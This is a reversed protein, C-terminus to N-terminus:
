LIVKKGNVIYLGKTPNEVRRGSLDYYTGTAFDEVEAADILTTEGNRTRVALQTPNATDTVFYARYLKVNLTKTVKHLQNDASTYAYYYNDADESTAITQNTFSGIMQWGNVEEPNTIESSITTEGGTIQIASKGERLSFLYPINAQPAEVEDFILMDNEASTLSYFAFNGLSEADPSFPLMITGYKGSALERHYTIASYTNPNTTNFDETYFDTLNLLKITNEPFALSGLQPNSNFIVETLNDCYAFAARDIVTVNQPFIVSTLNRCSHFAFVGISTISEPLNVSTLSTCSRFAQDGIKTVGMPITVSILNSCCNFAAEKIESIGNPLKASVISSCGSFAYSEISSINEPIILETVLKEDLYLNHAYSLPNSYYDSFSIKCWADISNINVATLNNCEYFASHNIKTVSQPITISLLASCGSFASSGISSVSEPITISTLNNCGKLMYAEISTVKEGISVEKLTTKGGFHPKNQLNLNRGIYIKELPSGSFATEDDEYPLNFTLVNDSDEIFLEKLNLCGSFSCKGMNVVSNPITISSIGECKEFAGEEISIVTNPINVTKIGTCGYFAFRRISTITNPIELNVVEEGNLFLRKAFHLPNSENTSDEERDIYAFEIKCWAELDNIYVATLDRCGKFAYLGIKKISSPISVSKLESCYKFASSNIMTVNYTLGNYVISNPIIVDGKYAASNVNFNKCCVYAEKNYNDIQYYVGNEEFDHANSLLPVLMAFFSLLLKKPQTKNTKMKIVIKTLSRKGREDQSYGQSCLSLTSM